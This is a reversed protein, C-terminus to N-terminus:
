RSAIIAELLSAAPPAFRTVAVFGDKSRPPRHYVSAKLQERKEKRRSELSGQDTGSVELIWRCDSPREGVFYDIHGGRAPLVVTIQKGEFHALLLGAMVIAGKEIFDERELTNASRPDPLEFSVSAMMTESGYQIQFRAPSSHYKALAVRAPELLLLGNLAPHYKLFDELVLAIVETGAPDKKGEKRNAV